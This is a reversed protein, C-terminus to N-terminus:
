QFLRRLWGRVSRSRKRTELELWERAFREPFSTQPASPVRMHYELLRAKLADLDLQETKDLSVIEGNTAFRLVTGATDYAYPYEGEDVDVAEIWDVADSVSLFVNVDKGRDFVFVVSDMGSM